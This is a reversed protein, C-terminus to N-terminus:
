ATSRRADRSTSPSSSPTTAGHRLRRGRQVLRRVRVRRRRRRRAPLQGDLLEAAARRRPVARRLLRGARGGRRRRDVRHRRLRLRVPLQDHRRGREGRLSRRPVTSGCRGRRRRRGHDPHGDVVLRRRRRVAALLAVSAALVAIPRAPAAHSHEQTSTIPHTGACRARTPSCSPAARGTPEHPALLVSRWDSRAAPAARTRQSVHWRLAVREIVTICASSCSASGSPPWSRRGCCRPTRTRGGAPRRRRARVDDPQRGRRLVGRRAGPRRQLARRRLDRAAGVAAAPAVAGGLTRRRRIGAARPRGPRGLADRRRRRVRVGADHRVRRPLDGAPRRARAVRRDVHLLRGVPRRARRGARAPRGARPVALVGAAAGVLVAVVLSIVIGAAAHRATVAAAELYFSPREALEDVIQSPPLLVFPRVDFLRSSCSGCRRRVRRHRRARRAVIRARTTM